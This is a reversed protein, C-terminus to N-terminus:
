IPIWELASWEVTVKKPNSDMFSVYMELNDGISRFSICYEVSANQFVFPISMRIPKYSSELEIFCHYYKRPM